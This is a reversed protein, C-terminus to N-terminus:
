QTNQPSQGYQKSTYLLVNLSVLLRFSTVSKSILNNYM